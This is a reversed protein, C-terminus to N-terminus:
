GNGPFGLCLEADVRCLGLVEFDQISMESFLTAVVPLMSCCPVVPQILGVPSARFYRGNLFVKHIKWQLYKIDFQTREEAEALPTSL